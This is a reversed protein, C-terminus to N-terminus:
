IFLLNNNSQFLMKLYKDEMIRMIRREEETKDKYDMLHLVGHVLVRFLEEALDKNMIKANDEVRELSIYIEGSIIGKHESTNFTIVDTYYNHSLFGNNMELLFADSTFLFFVEGAKKNEMRIVDTIWQSIPERNLPPTEIDIASFTIM